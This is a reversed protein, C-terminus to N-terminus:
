LGFQTCIDQMWTFAERATRPRLDRRKQTMAAILDWLDAGGSFTLTLPALRENEVRRLVELPTGPPQLFPNRGVVTEYLTVGLAFLDSRADIDPKLNRIQETPAYGLTAKGWIDGTATLSALALHRAIGFDILWFNGSADRIINEPKVDRHVIKATEADVLAELVHLGLRLFQEPPLPGGNLLERVNQGIIRQERLWVCDGIPAAIQGHEYIVPVRSSQVKLVALIERQTTEVDQDPRILKLVVDGDRAHTASVVLKQGGRSLPALNRLDAFQASLWNIDVNV